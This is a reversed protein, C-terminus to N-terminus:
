PKKRKKSYDNSICKIHISLFIYLCFSICNFISSSRTYLFNFNMAKKVINEKMVCRSCLNANILFALRFCLLLEDYFDSYSFKFKRIKFFEWVLQTKAVNKRFCFMNQQQVLSLKLTLKRFDIEFSSSPFFKNKFIKNM